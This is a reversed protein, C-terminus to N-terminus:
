TGSITMRSIKVTPSVIRSRFDPDNGVMEIGLFMENLNGAITIEEVPYAPEGNEIWMGAVGRSYDGTVVNVGFGILATVYLGRKVTAIIAEPDHPGPWLIFNSVGVSPSDGLGRVANATSKLGLKRASYTDLLYSRLVGGDVVLTQRTPLGEGDFPKSGLRGILTADDVIRVARSAITQGLKGILFSAGRYLSPGSAASALHGLLSAAMSPDFVVPAECTPVKRSGLRKLARLAATKGISEPSELDAFKRTSSYWYDRQMQGGDKAIPSVSLAYSSTPYEGAFGHTNALVVRGRGDEYEAGDSNAIRPDAAYAAAEAKRALAIKEETSLGGGSGDYLDLDGPLIGCAEVDPLGSFPDEATRRALACTDDILREVSEETLDSTSSMASRSDFFVRLGLGKERASKVKEVEGRHVTASFSEGEVLLIDGATAGRSTARELLMRATERSIEMQTKATM